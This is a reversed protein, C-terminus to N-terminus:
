PLTGLKNPQIFDGLISPDDYSYPYRPKRFSNEQSHVSKFKQVFENPLNYRFVPLISILYENSILKKAFQKLLSNYADDYCYTIPFWKWDDLYDKGYIAYNFCLLDALVFEEKSCFDVAINTIWHKATGSYYNKSNVKEISKDLIDLNSGSSVFIFSIAGNNRAYNHSFYTKGLLSGIAYYEKQQYLCAITYIFLEHIFIKALPTCNNRENYLLNSTEEFFLTIVDQYDEVFFANRLLLLYDERISQTTDYEQICKEGIELTDTKKAFSIIQNSITQLFSVLQTRKIKSNTNKKLEEYQVISKPSYDIPKDVWAPKQGLETKKYVEVGYLTKVLRQYEDDYEEAISLDFHYRSKLYTPKCVNGQEDREFVIPIFKVQSTNEYVEASIILTETGVGGTREDAKKAYVPDILMLVNTISSDKVCKEMFSYTENGPLLDMKDFVTDIGDSRLKSVFSLVKQEYEKTAWAYSIFVKPHEIKNKM